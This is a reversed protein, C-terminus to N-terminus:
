QRVISSGNFEVRISKMGAEDEVTFGPELPIWQKAYPTGKEGRRAICLGDFWVVLEGEPFEATKRFEMSAEPMRERRKANSRATRITM